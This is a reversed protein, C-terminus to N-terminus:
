SLFSVAGSYGAAGLGPEEVSKQKKILDDPISYRAGEEAQAPRRMGM